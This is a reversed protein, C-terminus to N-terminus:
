SKVRRLTVTHRHRAAPHTTVTVQALRGNALRFSRRVELAASRARVKLVRALPAEILAAGIEQHVEVVRVGFLDEILPFIPGGHRPLLRGVAAFDRHIYYEAWCTPASSGDVHGTGRVVLWEEGCGGGSRAALREDLVVLQLSAIQFRKGASWSVLDSISLDNISMVDHAYSAGPVATVETGAGQRSSILNDERLQRLAERVTHRSVGFRKRLAEETPLRAGMPHTGSVIEQRLADAVQRYLAVAASGV